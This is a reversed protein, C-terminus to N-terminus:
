SIEWPYKQEGNRLAKKCDSVNRLLLYGKPSPLFSLRSAQAAIRQVPATGMAARHGKWIDVNVNWDHPRLFFFFTDYCVQATGGDLSPGVVYFGVGRIWSQRKLIM